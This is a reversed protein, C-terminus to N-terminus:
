LPRGSQPRRWRRRRRGTRVGALGVYLWVGSAQERRNSNLSLPRETKAEARKAMKVRQTKDHQIKQRLCLIDTAPSRLTGAGLKLFANREFRGFQIRNRRGPASESSLNLGLNVM